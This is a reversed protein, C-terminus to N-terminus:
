KIAERGRLFAQKNIEIYRPPVHEAIVELWTEAPVDLFTSLAGLLVIDNTRGNGLSEAIQMASVLYVRASVQAFLQRIRETDPYRRTRFCM